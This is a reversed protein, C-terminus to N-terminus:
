EGYKIAEPNYKKAAAIITELKGKKSSTKSPSPTVSKKPKFESAM